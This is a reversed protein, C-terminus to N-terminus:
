YWILLAVPSRNFDVGVCWSAHETSDQGEASQGGARIKPEGHCNYPLAARPPAVQAHPVLILLNCDQQVSVCRVLGCGLEALSMRGHMTNRKGQLHVWKDPVDTPVAIGAHLRDGLDVAKDLLQKDNTLAYASLLGGLVRITTEFISVEADQIPYLPMADTIV